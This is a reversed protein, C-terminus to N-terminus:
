ASACFLISAFYRSVSPQAREAIRFTACEPLNLESRVMSSYAFSIQCRSLSSSYDSIPISLPTHIFKRKKVRRKKDPHSPGALLPSSRSFFLSLGQLFIEDPALFILRVRRM